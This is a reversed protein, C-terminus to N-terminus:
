YDPLLNRDTIYFYQAKIKDILNHYHPSLSCINENGIIYIREKARSVAVNLKRDVTGDSSLSEIARVDNKGQLPLCLIMISRESGQYREVTDISIDQFESPLRKILAHIMARFPAIIGIETAPDTVVGADVLMRLLHIIVDAQRLDYHYSASPPTNIWAIRHSLLEHQTSTISKLPQQQRDTVAQLQGNYFPLILDSIQQHMRYHKYLMFFTDERGPSQSCKYLRELLSQNFFSYQSNHLDPHTFEMARPAQIVIPPLQNQDGILVVKPIKSIIGLVGAEIIQSAEDIILEHMDIMGLLDLYWANCSQLTAIWIRNSRVVQDIEAFRKGAIMESLINDTITQSAGTRIFPIEIRQLNLCIEDVARNTFSLILINKASNEYQHRIYSTLLGSTKGTGPPGQVIFYDQAADIKLVLDQIYDQTLCVETMLPKSIGMFMSRKERSAQLFIFLSSLPSYLSAELIDHEISWQAPERFKRNNKLGGRVCLEIQREDLGRIVGRIMEQKTVPIDKRYLVVVDGVRFNSVLDTQSQTLFITNQNFSSITLDTLLEYDTTKVEAAEKWLSSFGYIGHNPNGTSGIKACWVENAIYRVQSLMWEFEHDDINNLLHTIERSKTEHFPNKYQINPCKLWQFFPAPNESLQHLIGVIRNRCMLLDQELSCINVVHHLLHDASSASYFISSFDMQEKGFCSKIILNYAIVQMHHQKWVDRAPPTGSKLEVISYKGQKKALIDLRGQLGYTPSIFSPELMIESGELERCYKNIRPLHIDKIQKHMATAAEIGLAVMSIPSAALCKRFLDNYEQTPDLILEDLITNVASGALPKASSPERCMKSIVFIEPHSSENSFCEAIASADVLFDPELIVYTDPTSKYSNDQDAIPALNIFRITAYQWLSKHLTTWIRGVTNHRMDNLLHVTCTDGSEDTLSIDLGTPSNEANKVLSWEQVIGLLDLKGAKPFATNEKREYGVLYASIGPPPEVQSLASILGTLTFIGIKLDDTYIKVDAEHIIQNCKARLRNALAPLRSPLLIRSHVYQMRAFLGSLNVTASEALSKYISELIQRLEVFAIKDSNGREIISELKRYQAEASIKDIVDPM